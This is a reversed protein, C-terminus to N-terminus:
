GLGPTTSTQSGVKPAETIGAATTKVGTVPTAPLRPGKPVPKRRASLEQRRRHIGALQARVAARVQDLQMRRTAAMSQREAASASAGKADRSGRDTRDPTDM